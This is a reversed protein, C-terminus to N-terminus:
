TSALESDDFEIGVLDFAPREKFAVADLSVVRIGSRGPERRVGVRIGVWEGLVVPVSKRTNIERKELVLGRGLLAVEVRRPLNGM